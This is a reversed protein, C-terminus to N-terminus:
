IAARNEDVEDEIFVPIEMTMPVEKYFLRFEYADVIKYPYECMDTRNSMRWVDDGVAVRGRSLTIATTRRGTELNEVYFKRYLGPSSARFQRKRQMRSKYSYAPNLVMSIAM